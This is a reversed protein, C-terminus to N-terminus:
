PYGSACHRANLPHLAVYCPARVQARYPPHGALLEYIICGVAWCDIPPGYGKSGDDMDDGPEAAAASAAVGAQAIEALEPAFYDPTGCVETLKGKALQLSQSLGFDAIKVTMTDRSTEKEAVLINSPKLDCHVVGVAHIAAVASTIQRALRVAELESFTSRSALHQFLDGGRMLETVLYMKDESEFVDVLRVLNPHQLQEWITIENRLLDM